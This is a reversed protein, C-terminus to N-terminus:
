STHSRCKREIIINSGAKLSFRPPGATREFRNHVLSQAHGESLAGRYLLSLREFDFGAGHTTGGGPKGVVVDSRKQFINFTGTM